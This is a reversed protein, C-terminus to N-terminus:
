SPGSRLEGLREHNVVFHLVSAAITV